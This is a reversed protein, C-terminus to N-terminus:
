GQYKPGRGPPDPPGSETLEDLLIPTNPTLGDNSIDTIPEEKLWQTAANKILDNLNQMAILVDVKSPAAVDPEIPKELNKRFAVFSIYVPTSMIGSATIFDGLADAFDLCLQKRNMADPAPAMAM